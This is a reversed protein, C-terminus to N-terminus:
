DHFLSIEYDGDPGYEDLILAGEPLFEPMLFIANNMDLQIISDDDEEDAPVQETEPAPTPQPEEQTEPDIVETEDGIAEKDEPVLTPAPTVPPATVVPAGMDIVGDIGMQQCFEELCLNNLQMIEAATRGVYRLHWPEWEWGTVDQKGQPYRLVFGYRACNAALWQAEKTDGFAATLTKARWEKSVVTVALGTQYDNEGPKQGAEGRKELRAYRNAEDEYSRYGQRVYLIVGANEADNCLQSLAEAAPYRLQISSSSVTYVGHNANQGSENNRRSVLKVLDGPEYTSYLPAASNALVLLDKDIDVTGTALAPVSACLVMLVAMMMAFIKRFAAM